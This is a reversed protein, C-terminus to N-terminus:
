SSAKLIAEHASRAAKDDGKRIAEFMERYSEDVLADRDIGDKKPKEKKSALILKAIDM